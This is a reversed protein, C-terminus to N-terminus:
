HFFITILWNMRVRIHGDKEPREPAQPNEASHTSSANKDLEDVLELPAKSRKRKGQYNVFTTLIPLDLQIGM